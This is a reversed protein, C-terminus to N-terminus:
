RRRSSGADWREEECRVTSRAAGRGALARGGSARSLRGLLVLEVRLPSSAAPPPRARMRERSSGSVLFGARARPRLPYGSRAASKSATRSSNPSIYLSSPRRTVHAGLFVVMRSSIARCNARDIRVVILPSARFARRNSRIEKSRDNMVFSALRAVPTSDVRGRRSSRPKRARAPGSLSLAHCEAVAAARLDRGAEREVDRAAADADAAARSARLERRARAASGEEREAAEPEVRAAANVSSGRSLRAM